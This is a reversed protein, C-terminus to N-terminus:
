ALVLKLPFGPNIEPYGVFANKIPKLTSAKLALDKWSLVPINPNHKLHKKLITKLANEQDHENSLIVADINKAHHRLDKLPVVPVGLVQKGIRAPSSDFCYLVEIGSLTASQIILFATLMSGFIAIRKIQPKNDFLSRGHHIAHLWARFSRRAGGKAPTRLLEKFKATPVTSELGLTCLFIEFPLIADVARKEPSVAKEWQKKIAALNTMMQNKHNSKFLMDQTKFRTLFAQIAPIHPKLTTNRERTKLLLRIVEIVPAGQDVNRSEQGQHQRYRLLPEALIGVPGRLNLSFVAWIDGSAFYEPHKMSLWKSLVKVYSDRHYLITPTPFWLKEEFYKEIYGTTSFVMDNDLEYLRPQVLRGREDILSVNSALCLLDPHKEVFAMQREILTPEMIDDDHTFIIYEGRSMWLAHNYSTTANGGPPQRIYFLRPDNYSLVLEATTDTSHNDVVLLEFDSYTQRLVADLSKQLYGSNCRNYTLLAITLKRSKKMINNSIKKLGQAYLIDDKKM